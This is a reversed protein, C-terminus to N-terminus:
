FEEGIGGFSLIQNWLTGGWDEDILEDSFAVWMTILVISM